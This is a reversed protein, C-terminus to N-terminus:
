GPVKIDAPRGSGNYVWDWSSDYIAAFETVQLDGALGKIAQELAEVSNGRLVRGDRMHVPLSSRFYNWIMKTRSCARRGPVAGRVHIKDVLAAWRGPDVGARGEFVGDRWLRLLRDADNWYLEHLWAFCEIARCITEVPVTVPRGTRLEEFIWPNRLAGRGVIWRTAGAAAFVAANATAIDCIDGSGTVPISELRRAALEILDYRARGLYRDARTRGHVTVQRLPLGRLIEIIAPFEDASAFGTRVKVSIRGPGLRKIADDLMAGLADPHELLASGARGGVVVPSPCGCNLDVFASDGRPMGITLIQEAVRAFDPANTAMLQPIVTSEPCWLAPMEKGPFTDTVRLFPTWMFDPASAQGFWVRAPFDTVGEM